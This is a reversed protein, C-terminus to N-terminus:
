PGLGDDPTFEPAEPVEVTAQRLGRAAVSTTPHTSPQGWAEDERNFEDVFDTVSEDFYLVRLAGNDEIHPVELVQVM